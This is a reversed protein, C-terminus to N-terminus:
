RSCSWSFPFSTDFIAMRLDRSRGDVFARIGTHMIAIMKVLALLDYFRM